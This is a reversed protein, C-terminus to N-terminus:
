GRASASRRRLALGGALAGAGIMALGALALGGNGTASTTGDGTAAGGRPIRTVVLDANAPAVGGPCSIEPDYAGAALDLPLMVTITFDFLSGNISNMPIRSALGLTSGDLIASAAGANLGHDCNATFTVKEGPSATAPTAFATSGEASAAYTAPTAAVLVPIALLVASAALRLMRM